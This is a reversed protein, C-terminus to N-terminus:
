VAKLTAVTVHPWNLGNFSLLVRQSYQLQVFERGDADKVQEIWFIAQARVAIANAGGAPPAGKGTLFAINNAGGGVDPVSNSLSTDSSITLVVTNAITQHAIAESLFLNPNTLHAQTLGPVRKLDTRSMSALALKEEEFHVLDTKGDDASGNRFPTISVVDFQPKQASLARGQLNVTTGHPITGMRVITSQESPNTTAPVNIWVGPEFHQGTGDFSDNITQLYSVGGLLIDEQLLGRNAIGNKGSIDSFTLTEDTLNL